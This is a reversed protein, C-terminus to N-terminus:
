RAGGSALPRADAQNILGQRRMAEIDNGGAHMEDYATGLRFSIRRAPYGRALRVIADALPKTAGGGPGARESITASHRRRTLWGTGPLDWRISGCYRLVMYRHGLRDSSVLSRALRLLCPELQQRLVVLRHPGALPPRFRPLNERIAARDQPRPLHYHEDGFRSVRGSLPSEACDIAMGTRVHQAHCDGPSHSRAAHRLRLEVRVLPLADPPLVGPVRDLAASLPVGDTLLTGIDITGSRRMWGPREEGFANFAEELPM